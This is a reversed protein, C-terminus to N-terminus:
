AYEDFLGQRCGCGFPLPKENKSAEPRGGTEIGRSAPRVLVLSSKQRSVLASQGDHMIAQQNPDNARFSVTENTVCAALTLRGL